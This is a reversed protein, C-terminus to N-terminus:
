PRVSANGASPGAKAAEMARPIGTDLLYDIQAVKKRISAATFIGAREGGNTIGNGGNTYGLRSDEDVFELAMRANRKEEELVQRMRALVEGRNAATALQRRLRYFDMLHLAMRVCSLQMTALGLERRAERQDEPATAAVAQRMLRVGGTWGREMRGFYKHAIDVDWPETWELSNFFQRKDHHRPRYAEDWFFPHAPGKQFPGNRSTNDSLPYSAIADSLKKWAEVFLPAAREGFDREAMQRVVDDGPPLPDWTFWKVLDIVRSPQFGNHSWNLFLGTTRPYRAIRRYREIFRQPVPIYPGQVYEQSIMSETKIWLPLGAKGILPMQTRFNESPGLLAITYDYAPDVIGDRRILGEKEFTQMWTVDKPLRAILGARSPDSEPWTYTWVVVAAKPNVSHAGQAVLGTLESIVEDRSRNSCRPCTNVRPLTRCNYFGEGLPILIAGKAGPAARFLSATAERIYRQVVPASTCLLYGSGFFSNFQRAVGRADPHKEFFAAPMPDLTLYLYVDIGYRLARGIMANLRALKADADAGLEPLAASRGLEHLKAWVYIANIGARSMRELLGDTYPDGDPKLEDGAYMPACSLRPSYRPSRTLSGTKLIPAQRLDMVDQMYYLGRMLARDDYGSITIKEPEVSLRFSEPKNLGERSLRLEIPKSGNALRIDMEQALFQRFGSAATRVVEAAGTPMEIRWSDDLRVEDRGPLSQRNRAKHYRVPDTLQRLFAFPEEDRNSFSSTVVQFALDTSAIPHGAGDYAEGAAYAPTAAGYDLNVAGEEGAGSTGFVEYHGSGAGEASLTIYIKEGAPLRAGHLDFRVFTEFYATVAGAPVSGEALGAAGPRSGLRYRLPGPTGARMVKMRVAAARNGAAPLVFSQGASSGAMIKLSVVRDGLPDYDHEALVGERAGGFLLGAVLIGPLYRWFSM